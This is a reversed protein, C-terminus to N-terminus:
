DRIYTIIILYIVPFGEKIFKFLLPQTAHERFAFCECQLLDLCEDFILIRYLTHKSLVISVSCLCHYLPGNISETHVNTRMCTGDKVEGDNAEGDKGGGWGEYGEMKTSECGCGKKVRQLKGWYTHSIKIEEIKLWNLTVLILRNM